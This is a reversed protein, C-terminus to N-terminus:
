GQLEKQNTRKTIRIYRSTIEQFDLIDGIIASRDFGGADGSELETPKDDGAPLGGYPQEVKLLGLKVQMEFVVKYFDMLQQRLAIATKSTLGIKSEKKYTEEEIKETHKILQQMGKFVDMNFEVKEATKIAGEKHGLAAAFMQAGDTTFLYKKAYNLLSPISPIWEKPFNLKESQEHLYKMVVTSSKRDILMKDVEYKVDQHYKGIIHIKTPVGHKRLLEKADLIKQIDKVEKGRM